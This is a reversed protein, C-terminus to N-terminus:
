SNVSIRSKIQLPMKTGLTMCALSLLLCKLFRLFSRQEMWATPQLWFMAGSHLCNCCRRWYLNLWYKSILSGGCHHEGDIIKELSVQFSLIYLFFLSVLFDWPHFYYTLWFRGPTNIRLVRKVVWLGLGKTLVRCILGAVTVCRISIAVYDVGQFKKHRVEPDIAGSRFDDSTERYEYTEDYDSGRRPVEGLFMKGPVNIFYLRATARDLLLLLFFM